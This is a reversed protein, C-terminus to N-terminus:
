LYGLDALREEVEDIGAEAREILSEDTESLRTTLSAEPAVDREGARAHAVTEADARVSAPDVSLRGGRTTGRITTEYASEGFVARKRVADGDRDEYVVTASRAFRDPEPCRERARERLTGHLQPQHAVVRGEPPLFAAAPDTGRRVASVADPVRSVDALATIRGPDASDATGAADPRAGDSEVGAPRRVLLPVHYLPEHTGLGHEVAPPEAATPSPAGFCEGHDSTVVLLTDDAVGRERLESLVGEVVADAQRIASEYLPELLGPVGSSLDGAYVDWEWRRPLSDHVAWAVPGGFADHAARVHYPFHADMLNLCGAWPEDAREADDIWDLLAGAYDYGDPTGSGDRSAPVDAQAVVSEFAFGFGAPHDTLWPNESVVATRYGTEALREFVTTEPRLRGEMTLEHVSAPVGTLLSAHSPLSWNSPARAQSFTTTRPDGALRELGPTTERGYGHLSTHRASVTDLVILLVNPPTPATPHRSM